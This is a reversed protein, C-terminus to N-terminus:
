AAKNWPEIVLKDVGARELAARAGPIIYPYPKTGPHKVHWAFRVGGPKAKLKGSLRRNGGIPMPRKANGSKPIRHPKSGYEVVAAYPTRAEIVASSATVPGPVISRALHGTKRPVLRKAERIADLQLARMGPEAEGIAKLRRQLAEMGKVKVSM